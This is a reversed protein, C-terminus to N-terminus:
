QLGDHEWGPTFGTLAYFSCWALWSCWAGLAGHANWAVRSPTTGWTVRSGRPQLTWCAEVTCASVRLVRNHQRYEAQIIFPSLSDKLWGIFGSWFCTSLYCCCLETFLLQFFKNNSEVTILILSYCIRSTSTWHPEYLSENCDASCFLCYLSFPFISIRLVAALWINTAAYSWDEDPFSPCSVCSFALLVM